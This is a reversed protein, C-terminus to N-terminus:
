QAREEPTLKQYPTWDRFSAFFRAGVACCRQLLPTESAGVKPALLASWCTEDYGVVPEGFFDYIAYDIGRLLSFFDELREGGRVFTDHWAIEILVIPKASSITEVAGRLFAMEQGEIDVKILSLQPSARLERFNDLRQVEVPYTATITDGARATLSGYGPGEPPVRLCGAYARDSLAVCMPRLQPSRQRWAALDRFVVPNPEFAFVRGRPGVRYLMTHTHAGYNAGADVATDGAKCTSLITDEIVFEFFNAQENPPAARWRARVDVDNPQKVEKGAGKLIRVKERM